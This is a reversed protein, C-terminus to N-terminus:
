EVAEGEPLNAVRYSIQLQAEERNEVEDEDSRTDQCLQLGEKEFTSVDVLCSLLFRLHIRPDCKSGAEDDGLEWVKADASNQVENAPVISNAERRVRVFCARDEEDYKHILKNVGANSLENSSVCWVGYKSGECIGKHDSRQNRETTDQHRISLDLREPPLYYKWKGNLLIVASMRGPVPNVVEVWEVVEHAREEDECAEVGGDVAGLFFERAEVGWRPLCALLVECIVHHAHSRPRIKDIRIRRLIAPDAFVSNTAIIQGRDVQRIIIISPSIRSDHRQEDETSIYQHIQQHLQPSLPRLSSLLTEHPCALKSHTSKRSM